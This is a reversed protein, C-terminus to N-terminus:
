KDLEQQVQRFTATLPPCITTCTTFIFNVAVTKGKVLPTYFIKPKGYQDYVKIDPFKLSAVASPADTTPSPSPKAPKTEADPTHATLRLAMGCKPCVGPKTSTVDKHMPCVYHAAKQSAISQTQARASEAQTILTAVFTLATILFLTFIRSPMVRK